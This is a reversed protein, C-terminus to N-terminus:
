RGAKVFSTEFPLIPYDKISAQIAERFAPVGKAPGGPVDHIGTGANIIVEPGFDKLIVDCMTNKIGASPVPFVPKFGDCTQRLADCVELADQMQLAVSGYPSPYLVMDAGALRPLVGFLVKPSIGHAPSGYFSGALAPHAMIPVGLNASRLAALMPLGYSLYNFLFCNAGHEVLSRARGILEDAPGTLNIAYLPSKGHQTKIKDSATLIAELRRKASDLDPDSLIEDDKICDVGAEAGSEFVRSLQDPSIGLSPKFICMLLPHNPNTVGTLERIGDVGFAPGQMRASRLAEPLKLDVLRIAGAMSIKGFIVTMLTGIDSAVSPLPFAIEILARRPSDEFVKVSQVKALYAEGEALVDLNATGLTQGVAIELAMKDFDMEHHTVLYTAWVSQTPELPQCVRDKLSSQSAAASLDAM